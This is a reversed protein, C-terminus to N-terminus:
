DNLLTGPVKDPDFGRKKKRELLVRSAAAIEAVSAKIGEKIIELQEDTYVEPKTTFERYYLEYNNMEASNRGSYNGQM